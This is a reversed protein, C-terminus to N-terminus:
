SNQQIGTTVHVCSKKSSVKGELKLLVSHQAVSEVFFSIPNGEVKLTIKADPLTGFGVERNKMKLKM